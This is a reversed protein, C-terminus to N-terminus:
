MDLVVEMLDVVRDGMGEVALLLIVVIGVVWNALAIVVVGPLVQCRVNM